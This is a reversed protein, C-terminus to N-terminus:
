GRGDRAFCAGIELLLHAHRRVTLPMGSSLHRCDSNVPSLPHSAPNGQTLYPWTTGLPELHKEQKTQQQLSSPKWRGGIRRLYVKTAGPGLYCGQVLINRCCNGLPLLDSIAIIGHHFLCSFSASPGVGVSRGSNRM